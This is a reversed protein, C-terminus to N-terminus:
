TTEDRVQEEGLEMSRLLASLLMDDYFGPDPWQEKPVTNLKTRVKEYLADDTLDYIVPRRPNADTM